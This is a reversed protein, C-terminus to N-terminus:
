LRQIGKFSEDLRIIGGLINVDTKPGDRSESSM